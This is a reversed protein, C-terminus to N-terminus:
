VVEGLYFPKLGCVWAPHSSHFKQKWPSFLHKLGCVWAPHSVQNFVCLRFFYPKLGCVWAPHSLSLLTKQHHMLRKLGCVWAPHSRNNRNNWVFTLTEIWVGVCPTVQSIIYLNFLVVTEIWVGVCPTVGIYLTELEGFLNWDVCGRLTHCQNRQLVQLTLAHKLGCVWAPHSKNATRLLQCNHNWDM